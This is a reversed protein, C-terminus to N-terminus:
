SKKLARELVRLRPTDVAMCMIINRNIYIRAFRKEYQAYYEDLAVINDDYGVIKGQFTNGNEKVVEVYTQVNLFAELFADFSTGNMKEIDISAQQYLSDGPLQKAFENLYISDASMRQVDSMRYTSVALLTASASIEAITIFETSARLIYAVVNEESTLDFEVLQKNNIINQLDNQYDLTTM